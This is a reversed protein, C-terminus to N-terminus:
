IDEAKLRKALYQLDQCADFCMRNYRDIDDSRSKVTLGRKVVRNKISIVSVSSSDASFFISLITKLLIPTSSYMMTNLYNKRYLMAVETVYLMQMACGIATGCLDKGFKESAAVMHGLKLIRLPTVTITLYFSRSNKSVSRYAIFMNNSIKM